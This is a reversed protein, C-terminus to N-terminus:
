SEQVSPITQTGVTHRGTEKAQAIQSSLTDMTSQPSPISTLTFGKGGSFLSIHINGYRFLTPFFGRISYSLESINELVVETVHKKFVASRIIGILRRNTLIYITGYWSSVVSVLLLFLTGGIVVFAAGGIMGFSFLKFLFLFLVFLGFVLPIILLVSRLIHARFLGIIRENGDMIIEERLMTM